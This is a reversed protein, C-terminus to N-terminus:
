NGRSRLSRFTKAARFNASNAERRHRSVVTIRHAFLSIIPNQEARQFITWQVNRTFSPPTFEPNCRPPDPNRRIENWTVSEHNINNFATHRERGREIASM